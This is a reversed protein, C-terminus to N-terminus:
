ATRTERKAAGNTFDPLADLAKASGEITTHSYCDMTLQITSHRALTQAVKPHVGGRALTSIFTHRLSHFDVQGHENEFPIGAAALDKQLMESGRRTKQMPFAPASPHKLKLYERLEAAVDQHLPLVDERRHKSYAAQVTVTPPSGNFDFSAPTLSRLESWRLGTSMAALYLMRRDDGSIGRSTKRNRAAELLKVQEDPTLARRRRRRDTRANLGSLHEVPSEAARGSRVMWRCFRKVTAVYHNGTTVSMGEGDRLSAVFREVKDAEIDSWYVFGCGRLIRSMQTKVNGIYDKARRRAELTGVYDAVHMRLPKGAAARKADILGIEEFKRRARAPVAELWGALDGTPMENNARCAILKELKRAFEESQRKDTFAPIRRVNGRHDRTECYWKEYYEGDARKPKYVRM